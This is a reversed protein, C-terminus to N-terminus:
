ALLSSIFSVHTVCDNYFLRFAVIRCIYRVQRPANSGPRGHLFYLLEDSFGDCKVELAQSFVADRWRLRLALDFVYVYCGLM